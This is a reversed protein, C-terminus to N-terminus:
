QRPQGNGHAAEQMAMWMQRDLLEGREESEFLWREITALRWGIRGASVQLPRPGIKGAATMRDLTATSVSLLRALERRGVLLPPFTEPAGKATSASM